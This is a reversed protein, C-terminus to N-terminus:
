HQQRELCPADAAGAVSLKLFNEKDSNRLPSSSHPVHHQDVCLFIVVGRGFLHGLDIGAVQSYLLFRCPAADEARRLWQLSCCRCSRDPYFSALDQHGVAWEGLGFFLERSIVNEITGIEVFREFPRRFYRARAPSARSADLYAWN